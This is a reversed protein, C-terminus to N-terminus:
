VDKYRRMLISFILSLGIMTGGYILCVLRLTDMNQNIQTDSPDGVDPNYDALTKNYDM